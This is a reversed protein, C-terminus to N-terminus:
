GQSLFYNEVAQKGNKAHLQKIEAKRVNDFYVGIRGDGAQQKWATV